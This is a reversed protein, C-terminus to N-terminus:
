IFVDCDLSNQRVTEAFGQLDDASVPRLSPFAPDRAITYLHINRPQLLRYCSLLGELEDAQFNAFRSDDQCNWLLTQIRLKPIRQMRTLHAGLGRYKPSPRSLRHFGEETGCDLKIWAENALTFAQVVEDRDLESGNSLITIKWRARSALQRRRLRKVLDLLEPYLGPESNGALTISEIPENPHAEFYRAIQTEVESAPLSPLQEEPKITRGFGYQCYLCSWTCAKDGVHLNVGLSLGLRRSHVPGYLSPSLINKFEPHSM